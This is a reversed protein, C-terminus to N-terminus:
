YFKCTFALRSGTLNRLVWTQHVWLKLLSVWHEFEQKLSNRYEVTICYKCVTEVYFSCKNLNIELALSRFNGNSTQKGSLHAYCVSQGSCENICLQWNKMMSGEVQGDFSLVSVSNCKVYSSNEDIKSPSFNSKSYRLLYRM